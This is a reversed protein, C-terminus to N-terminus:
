LDQSTKTNIHTPLHQSFHTFIDAAKGPDEEKLENLESPQLHHRKVSQLSISVLAMESTKEEKKEAKGNEM